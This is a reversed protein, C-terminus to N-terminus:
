NREINDPRIPLIPAPDYNAAVEMPVLPTNLNGYPEIWKAFAAEESEGSSINAGAAKRMTSATQDFFLWVGVVAVVAAAAATLPMPGVWRLRSPKLHVIKQVATDELPISELAGRGRQELWQM